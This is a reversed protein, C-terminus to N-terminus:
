RCCKNEDCATITGLTANTILLTGTTTVATAAVSYTCCDDFCSDCDCVFFTFTGTQTILTTAASFTWPSGVNIATVQGRCFKSIQFNVTGTYATAAINSTFELKTCPDCLHSTNITIPSSLSFTTNAPTAASISVASPCGCKIITPCPKKEKKCCDDDHHKEKKCPDCDDNYYGKSMSNM